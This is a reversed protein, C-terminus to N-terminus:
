KNLKLLVNKIDAYNSWPIFHDAGELTIMEVSSANMLNEKAFLANGYPVLSDHDGHLIFVRCRIQQLMHPMEQVDKKFYMLEDNSPRLFAPILYRLPTHALLYRWRESKEEKPDVSGALLVLGDILGPNNYALEVIMPGGLSHGVLFIPKNNKLRQLLPSIIEAQKDMHEANGYDSYGLGPRDIAIMHYQKVLDSDKLYQTFAEWSGPSGHIFVLLPLSDSGTSVYHLHHGNITDTYPTLVVGTKKFDEIATADDVRMRNCTQACIIWVILVVFLIRKVIHWLRKM